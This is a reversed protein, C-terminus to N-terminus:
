TPIGAVPLIWLQLAFYLGAVGLGLAFGGLASGTRTSEEQRAKMKDLTPIRGPTPEGPIVAARCLTVREERWKLRRWGCVPGAWGPPSVTAVPLKEPDEGGSRIERGDAKIGDGSFVSLEALKPM